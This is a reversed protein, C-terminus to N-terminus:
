HPPLASSTSRNNSGVSTHKVRARALALQRKYESILKVALEHCKSQPNVDRLLTIAESYRGKKAKSRADNVLELVRKEMQYQSIRKQMAQFHVSDPGINKLVNVADDYKDGDALLEAQAIFERTELEIQVAEKIKATAREGLSNVVEQSASQVLQKNLPVGQRNGKEGLQLSFDQKYSQNSITAITQGDPTKVTVTGNDRIQGTFRDETDSIKCLVYWDPNVTSIVVNPDQSFQSSIYDVIEQETGSGSSATISLRVPEQTAYAPVFLLLLAIFAPSLMVKLLNIQSNRTQRYM